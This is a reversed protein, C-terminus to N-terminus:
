FRGKINGDGDSFLGGIAICNILGFTKVSSTGFNIVAKRQPFSIEQNDTEFVHIIGPTRPEIAITNM